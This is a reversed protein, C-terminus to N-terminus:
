RKLHIKLFVNLPYVSTRKILVYKLSNNKFEKFQFVCDLKRNVRVDHFTIVADLSLGRINIRPVIFALHVNNIYSKERRISGEFHKVVRTM